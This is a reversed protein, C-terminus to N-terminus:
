NKKSYIVYFLSLLVQEPNFPFFIVFLNNKNRNKENTIYTGGWGFFINKTIHDLFSILGTDFYLNYRILGSESYLSYWYM